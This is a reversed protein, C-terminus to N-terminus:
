AAAGPDLAHGLPLRDAMPDPRTALATTVLAASVPAYPHLVRYAEAIEEATAGRMTRALLRIRRGARPDDIAKRVEEQASRRLDKAVYRLPDVRLFATPELCRDVLPGVRGPFGVDGLVMRDVVRQVGEDDLVSSLRARSEDGGTEALEYRLASAARVVERRVFPELDMLMEWRASTGDAVLQELETALRRQTAWPVLTIEGAFESPMGTAEPLRAVGADTHGMGALSWSAEIEDDVVLVTGRQWVVRVPLHAVSGDRRRAKRGVDILPPLWSWMPLAVLGGAAPLGHALLRAADRGTEIRALRGCFREIWEHREGTGIGTHGRRDDRARRRGAGADEQAVM